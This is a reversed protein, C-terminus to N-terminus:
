ESRSGPTSSGTTAPPTRIGLSGELVWTVIEMDRHPHTDFGTGADVIDDNNVLLLGHHTNAHDYHHGFSFSHKSDLWGFQSKYRDEARRVDVTPTLNVTSM